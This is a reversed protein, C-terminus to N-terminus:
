IGTDLDFAGIYCGVGRTFSDLGLNAIYESEPAGMYLQLGEPQGKMEGTPEDFFTALM